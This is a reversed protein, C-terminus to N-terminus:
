RHVENKIGVWIWLCIFGVVGLLGYKSVEDRMKKWFQARDRAQEIFMEHARRHGDPDDLPFGTAIRDQKAAYSSFSIMLNSVRSETANTSEYIKHILQQISEVSELRKHLDAIAGDVEERCEDIKQDTSVMM